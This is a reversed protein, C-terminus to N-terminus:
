DPTEGIVRIRFLPQRSADLLEMQWETNQKLDRSVAGILTSCVRTMEAWAADPDAVDVAQDSASGYRGNRIRLYYLPVDIKESPASQGDFVGPMSAVGLGERRHVVARTASLETQFSITVRRVADFRRPPKAATSSRGFHSARDLPSRVKPINGEIVPARTPRCM